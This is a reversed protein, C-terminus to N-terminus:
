RCSREKSGLGAFIGFLVVAFSPVWWPTTFLWALGRAILGHPDGFDEAALGRGLTDLVLRAGTLFSSIATFIIGAVAAIIRIM